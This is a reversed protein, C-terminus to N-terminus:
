KGFVTKSPSKAHRSKLYAIATVFQGLFLVACSAISIGLNTNAIYFVIGLLLSNLTAILFIWGSHSSLVNFFPPQNRNTYMATKNEFGLPKTSLFFDRLENIYRACFVFYVRNRIVLLFMSLGVLLSVSLGVILANGIAVNQEVSFSYLGLAAGAVASYFAALYKYIGIIQSDYYRMQEFCQTFDIQLFAASSAPKEPTMEPM